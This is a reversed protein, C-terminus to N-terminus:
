LELGKSGKYDEESLDDLKNVLRDYLIYGLVSRSRSLYEKPIDRAAIRYMNEDKLFVKEIDELYFSLVKYGDTWYDKYVFIVKSELFEEFILADRLRSWSDYYVELEDDHVVYGLYRVTGDKNKYDNDGDVELVENLELVDLFLDYEIKYNSRLVM